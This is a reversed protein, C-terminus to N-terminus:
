MCFLDYRCRAQAHNQHGSPGDATNQAFLFKFIGFHLYYRVCIDACATGVYKIIMGKAESLCIGYCTLNIWLRVLVSYARTAPILLCLALAVLWMLKRWLCLGFEDYDCCTKHKPQIAGPCTCPTCFLLIMPLHLLAVVIMFCYPIPMPMHSSILTEIPIVM